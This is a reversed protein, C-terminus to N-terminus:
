DFGFNRKEEDTMLEYCVFFVGGDQHIRYTWGNFDMELNSVVEDWVEFYDENDSNELASYDEKKLNSKDWRFIHYFDKPLHIGRSEDLFHFSSGITERQEKYGLKEM